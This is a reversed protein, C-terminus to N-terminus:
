SAVQLREVEALAADLTPLLNKFSVARRAEDASFWRVEDVESLQPKLPADGLLRVLFNEVLKFVLIGRWRFVYKVPPLAGVIRLKALPLGTEEAIERLAAAEATEGKELNGKPFGWRGGAKILAFQPGTATLKFVVGGASLQSRARGPQRRPPM